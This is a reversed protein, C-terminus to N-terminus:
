EGRPQAAIGRLIIEKLSEDEDPNTNDTMGYAQRELAIRKHQVNALNNLAAARETVAIAVVKEIIKGQYQGIWLKTPENKLELLLEQEVRKMKSIDRRHSFLVEAVEESKEEVIEEDTANPKRMNKRLLKEQARLRVRDVLSREWGEDKIKKRLTSEPCKFRRSIERLSLVGARVDKEIAEWDQKDKKKRM